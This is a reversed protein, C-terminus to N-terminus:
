SATGIQQQLKVCARLTKGSFDNFNNKHRRQDRFVVGLDQDIRQVDKMTIEQAESLENSLRDMRGKQEKKGSDIRKNCSGKVDGVMFFSIGSSIAVGACLLLLAFFGIYVRKSFYRKKPQETEQIDCAEVMSQERVIGQACYHLVTIAERAVAKNWESENNCVDNIQEDIITRIIASDFIILNRFTPKVGFHFIIQELMQSSSAVIGLMHAIHDIVCFYTQGLEDRLQGIMQHVHVFVLQEEDASLKQHLSNDLRIFEHYQQQPIFFTCFVDSNATFLLILFISGNRV